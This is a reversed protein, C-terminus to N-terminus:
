YPCQNNAAQHLRRLLVRCNATADYLDSLRPYRYALLRSSWLGTWPALPRMADHWHTSKIWAHAAPADTYHRHLERHIVDHDYRINYALLNRGHFLRTLDPLLESFVPAHRTSDQTLGHLSTAEPEFDAQPNLLEELVLTGDPELASIQAAYPQHLGTTQIDILLLTPDNLLQRAWGVTRARDTPWTPPRRLTRVADAFTAHREGTGQVHWLGDTDRAHLTGLCDLSQYRGPPYIGWTPRDTDIPRICEIPVTDITTTFIDDWHQPDSHPPGAPVPRPCTPKM